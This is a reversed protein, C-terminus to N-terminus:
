PPIQRPLPKSSRYVDERYDLGVAWEEFRKIAETAAERLAANTSTEKILGLRNGVLSAQYSLDDLALSTNTFTTESPDLAGVRDFRANAAQIVQDVAAQLADPSTELNPVTLKSGFRAAAAQYDELSKLDAQAISGSLTTILGAMLM